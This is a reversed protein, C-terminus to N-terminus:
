GRYWGIQGAYYLHILVVKGKIATDRVISSNTATQETKVAGKMTLPQM